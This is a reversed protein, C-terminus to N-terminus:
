NTTSDTGGFYVTAGLSVYTVNSTLDGNGVIRGPVVASDEPNSADTWLAQQAVQSDTIHQTGLFQEAFGVDLAVRKAITFTGGVGVGFKPAEPLNVGTTATPLASSEYHGGLRVQAWDTIKYDGGLRISWADQFGTRFVVDDTVELDEDLLAAGEKHPVVMDMNTIRFESMTSWQTYTWDAEIRLAEIPTVQVGTRITLPVTVKLLTDPDEFTTGDLQDALIFDESFSAGLTGPAEYSIPPQVSAGIEIMPHPTVIFGANWSLKFPDWNSVSLALDNAPDDAVSEDACDAPDPRLCVTANLREEVRLFTYQLSAGVTLWPTIEHAVSPGAYAQWILSDVLQYRQAGDAPYALYPATPVYLGLAFHTRSLYPHLGGLHTAFGAAPEYIPPSENEVPEFVTGDEDDARDFNVYQAAAWGQLNFLPRKINKLAAPNYYQASLDDAGVVFAGGRGIARAGSDIYYYGSAFAPAALLWLM